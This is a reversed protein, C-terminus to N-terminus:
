AFIGSDIQELAERVVAAGLEDGLLDGPIQGGLPASPRKLWAEAKAGDGFVREALARIELRRLREADSGGIDGLVDTVERIRAFADSDGRRRLEKLDEYVRGYSRSTM